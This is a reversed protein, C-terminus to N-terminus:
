GSSIRVYAVNEDDLTVKRKLDGEYYQYWFRGVSPRNPVAQEGPWEGILGHFEDVMEKFLSHVATRSGVKKAIGRMKRESFLVYHDRNNKVSESLRQLVDKLVSHGALRLAADKVEGKGNITAGTLAWHNKGKSRLTRGRKLAQAFYYFRLLQTLSTRASSRKRQLDFNTEVEFWFSSGGCLVIADPEGFGSAKGFNPFLWVEPDEEKVIEQWERKKKKAFTEQEGSFQKLNSILPTIIGSSRQLENFLLFTFSNEGYCHLM